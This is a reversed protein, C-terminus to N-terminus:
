QNEEGVEVPNREVLMEGLAGLFIGVLYGAMDAWAFTTGLVLRGPITARLRDIWPAHYLQSCEIVVSFLVALTAIVFTTARPALFGWGLFVVLAWLADGAYKSFFGQPVWSSRVFLGSAITVLILLAWM